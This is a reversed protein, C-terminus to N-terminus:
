IMKPSLHCVPLLFKFVALYYMLMLVHFYLILVLSDLSYPYNLWHEFVHHQVFSASYIFSAAASLFAFTSPMQPRRINGMPYLSSSSSLMQLSDDDSLNKLFFM